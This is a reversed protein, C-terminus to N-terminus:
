INNKLFIRWKLHPRQWFGTSMWTNPSNGIHVPNQSRPFPLLSLSIHLVILQTFVEVDM